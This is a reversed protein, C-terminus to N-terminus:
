IINVETELIINFKEKIETQIKKSLNLIEKGSANNYNVLVLAQKEHIGADG